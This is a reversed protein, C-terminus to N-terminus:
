GSLDPHSYLRICICLHTDDNQECLFLFFVHLGYQIYKVAIYTAKHGKAKIILYMFLIFITGVYAWSLLSFRRASSM